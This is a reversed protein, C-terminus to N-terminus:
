VYMSRAEREKRRSITTRPINDKHKKTVEIDYEVFARARKVLGEKMERLEDENFRSMLLLSQIWSRWGQVSRDLANLTLIMCNVIELRDSEKKLSLNEMAKLLTESQTIWRETLKIM